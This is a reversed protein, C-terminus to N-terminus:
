RGNSAPSNDTFVRAALWRGAQDRLWRGDPGLLGPALAVAAAAWVAVAGGAVLLVAFPPLAAARLPVAVALAIGGTPIVLVAGGVHARLLPGWRGGVIKLAERTQLLHFVTLAAVAAVAVGGLGYRWAVLSGGIVGAAYVGQLAAARWVAGRAKLVTMGAKYGARFAMGAALIRLPAVAGAWAPGLVVLVIEPALVSTVAALPLLVLALVGTARYLAKALREPEAQVQALVPFLVGNFAETLFSAPLAMLKYARTYLGLMDAGLARGIVFSDGQRALNNLAGQLAVAGGFRALEAVAAREVRPAKPHPFLVLFGVAVIAGQALRGGVLAWVQLGSLALAVSVVGYGLFDAAARVIVIQRFALERQALARAVASASDLLLLLGVVPVVRRLLPMKFYAAAAPAVAATAAFCLLGLALSLTFAPRIVGPTGEARQV